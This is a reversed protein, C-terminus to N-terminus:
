DVVILGVFGVSNPLCFSGFNTLYTGSLYVFDFNAYM